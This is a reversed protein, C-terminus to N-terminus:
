YMRTMLVSRGFHPSMKASTQWVSRLQMRNFPIGIRVFPQNSTEKVVDDRIETLQLDPHRASRELMHQIEEDSLDANRPDLHHRAVGESRLLAHPYDSMEVDGTAVLLTSDPNSERTDIAPDIGHPTAEESVQPSHNPLSYTDSSGDITLVLGMLLIKLYLFMSLM